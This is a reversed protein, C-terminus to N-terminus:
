ITPSAIHGKLYLVLSGAVATTAAATMTLLIDTNATFKYGLTGPALATSYAAARFSTSSSVLRTASGADGLSVTLGTSSDFQPNDMAIGTIVFSKPVTFLAVTNNITGLHTTTIAFSGGLAMEQRYWGVGPIDQTPLILTYAVAM